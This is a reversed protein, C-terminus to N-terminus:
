GEWSIALKTRWDECWCSVDVPATTNVQDGRGICANVGVPRQRFKVLILTSTSGACSLRIQRDYVATRALLTHNCRVADMETRWVLGSASPSTVLGYGDFVSNKVSHFPSLMCGEGLRYTPLLSERCEGPAVLCLFVYRHKLVVSSRGFVRVITCGELACSTGCSTDSMTTFTSGVRLSPICM